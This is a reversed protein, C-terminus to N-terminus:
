RLRTAGTNHRDPLQDLLGILRAQSFPKELYTCAGQQVLDVARQVAQQHGTFVLPVGYEICCELVTGADIDPLRTESIVAVTQEQGLAAKLESVSEVVQVQWGQGTLLTCLADRVSPNPEMLILLGTQTVDGITFEGQLGFGSASELTDNLMVPISLGCSGPSM